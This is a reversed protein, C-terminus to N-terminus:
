DPNIGLRIIDLSSRIAEVVYGVVTDIDEPFNFHKVYNKETIFGNIYTLEPIHNLRSRFVNFNGLGDRDKEIITLETSVKDNSDRYDVSFYISRFWDSYTFWVDEGNIKYVIIDERFVDNEEDEVLKFRQELEKILKPYIDRLM